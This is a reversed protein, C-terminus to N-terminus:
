PVVHVKVEPKTCVDGSKLQVEVGVTYDGALDVFFSPTSSMTNPALRATSEAPRDLITWSFREIDELDLTRSIVSFEIVSHLMTKIENSPTDQSGKVKAVAQVDRCPNTHAMQQSGLVANFPVRHTTADPDNTQISLSTQSLDASGDWFFELVLSSEPGVYVPRPPDSSLEDMVTETWSSAPELQLADSDGEIEISDIRLNGNGSNTLELTGKVRGDQPEYTLSGEGLTVNAAAYCCFSSDSSYDAREGVFIHGEYPDDLPEDGGGCASFLLALAVPTILLLNAYRMM